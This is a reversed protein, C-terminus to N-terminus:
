MLPTSNLYTETQSNVDASTNCLLKIINYNVCRCAHWLIPAKINLFPVRKFQDFKADLTHFTINDWLEFENIFILQEMDVRCSKILFKLLVYDNHICAQALLTTDRKNVIYVSDVTVKREKINLLNLKSILRECYIASKKETYYEGKYKEILSPIEEKVKELKNM